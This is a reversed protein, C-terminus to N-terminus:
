SREEDARRLASRLAARAARLERVTAEDDAGLVSARCRRSAVLAAHLAALRADTVAHVFAFADSDSRGHLLRESQYRGHVADIGLPGRREAYEWDWVVLEGTAARRAQNWPVWDGHVLGVPLPDDAHLREAAAVLDPLDPM